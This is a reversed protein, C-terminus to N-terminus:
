VIPTEVILVHSESTVAYNINDHVFKVCDEELVHVYDGLKVSLPWYTQEKWAEHSELMPYGEGARRVLGSLIKKNASVGPPLIIGGETKRDGDDVAFLIKDHLVKLSTKM